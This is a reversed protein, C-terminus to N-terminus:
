VRKGFLREYENLLAKSYDSEAGPVVYNFIKVRTLLEKKIKEDDSLKLDAVEKLIGELNAIGVEGGPLTLKKIMRAAAAACCPRENQM